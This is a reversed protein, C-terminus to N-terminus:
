ECRTKRVIRRKLVQSGRSPSAPAQCSEAPMTWEMLARSLPEGEEVEEVPHAIGAAARWLKCAPRAFRLRPPEDRYQPGKLAVGKLAVRPFASVTLTCSAAHPNVSLRHAHM